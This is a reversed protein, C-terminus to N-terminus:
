LSGAKSQLLITRLTFTVFMASHYPTQVRETAKFSVIENVDIIFLQIVSITDWFVVIKANVATLVV